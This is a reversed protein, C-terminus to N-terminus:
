AADASARLQATTQVADAVAAEKATVANQFPKPDLRFLVDGKKLHTNAQVEVDIVIGSVAPVIPTTNFYFRAEKSFPHNYNMGLLLTALLAIGGLVATLLSYGNVPIKFIRFVAYAFAAYTLILLLDM